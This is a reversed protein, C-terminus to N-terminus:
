DEKQDVANDAKIMSKKRKLMITVVGVAVVVAAVTGGLIAVWGSLFNNNAALPTGEDEINVTNEDGIGDALPTEEDGITVNNDIGDALPVNEDEIDAVGGDAAGGANAAGANAGGANAGGANPTVVAPGVNVQTPVENIVTETVTGGAEYETVTNVITGTEGSYTYRFTVINANEDAENLVLSVAGDATSYGSITLPNCVITEGANGYAITPPAIQEGSASDVFRIVYKVPDVLKVYDLVYETNRNVSAQAAGQCWDSAAKLRYDSDIYTVGETEGASTVNLFYADLSADDSLFGFTSSLSEGKEVTFKIYNSTAEINDGSINSASMNFSGVNGARFTVTYTKKAENEARVVTAPMMNVVLTVALLMSALMKVTKKM